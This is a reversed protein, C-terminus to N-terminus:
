VADDAQLGNIFEEFSNALLTLAKDIDEDMRCFYVKGYNKGKEICIVFQWGGSDYAFPFYKCDFYWSQNEFIEFLNLKDNKNASYFKDIYYKRGALIFVSSNLETPNNPLVFQKYDKPIHNDILSEFEILILDDILKGQKLITYM